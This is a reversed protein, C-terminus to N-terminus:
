VVEQWYDQQEATLMAIDWMHITLTTTPPRM